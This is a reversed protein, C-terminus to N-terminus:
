KKGRGKAVIVIIVILLMIIIILYFQENLIRTISDTISSQKQTSADTPSPSSTSAENIKLTIKATKTKGGGSAYITLDYDGAAASQGANVTLTSTFDPVGSTKDFTAQVQSPLGSVTLAVTENFDDQKSISILYNTEQPPNVIQSTPATSLEFDAEKASQVNLNVITSKSIGGGSATINLSYTGPPTESSTTVTISSSFGPSGQIPNISTTATPPAGSLSLSTLVPTGSALNVNAAYTVAEGATITKSSPSVNLTIDFEPAPAGVVFQYTVQNNGLDGDNYDSNPDVVWIATHLGTSYQRPDTSVALSSTGTLTLTGGGVLAGDVTCVIDVPYPGPSITSLIQLWVHQQVFDATTPNAPTISPDYVIWDVSKKGPSGTVSFATQESGSDAGKAANATVVYTGGAADNSLHHIYRYEGVIGGTPPAPFGAISGGPPEIHVFVDAGDVGLLIDINLQSVMVTITVDEGPDYVLKNTAVDVILDAAYTSPIFTGLISFILVITFFISIYKNFQIRNM